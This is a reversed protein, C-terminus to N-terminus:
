EPQASHRVELM